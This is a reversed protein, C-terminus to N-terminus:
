RKTKLPSSPNISFEAYGDERWGTKTAKGSRFLVCQNVCGIIMKRNWDVAMSSCALQCILIDFGSKLCM